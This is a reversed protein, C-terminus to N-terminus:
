HFELGYTLDSKGLGSLLEVNTVVLLAENTYLVQDLLSEQLVM